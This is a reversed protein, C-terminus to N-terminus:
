ACAGPPILLETRYLLSMDLASVHPYEYPVKRRDSVSRQMLVAFMGVAAAGSCFEPQDDIFLAQAPDTGLVRLAHQYIEPDPKRCGVEFSLFVHDVLARVQLRDILTAAGHSCNSIVGSAIGAHKIAKLFSVVDPYFDGHRGLYAREVGTLSSIQEDTLQLGAARSIEELDRRESGYIGINRGAQTRAYGHLLDKIQVGSAIAMQKRLETWPCYITTDFLDLLIAKIAPRNGPM